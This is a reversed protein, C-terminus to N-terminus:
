ELQNITIQSLKAEVSSCHRWTSIKVKSVYLFNMVNQAKADLTKRNELKEYTKRMSSDANDDTKTDAIYTIIINTSHLM